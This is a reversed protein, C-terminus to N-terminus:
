REGRGLLVAGRVGGCANARPARLAQCGRGRGAAPVAPPWTCEKRRCKGLPEQTGPGTRPGPPEAPFVPVAPLLALGLLAPPPCSLPKRVRHSDPWWLEPTRARESGVGQGHGGTPWAVRGSGPPVIGRDLSNDPKSKEREPPWMQRHDPSGRPKTSPSGEQPHPFRGQNQGCVRPDREAECRVSIESSNQKENKPIKRERTQLWGPPAWPEPTARHEPTGGPPTQPTGQLTASVGPWHIGQGGM